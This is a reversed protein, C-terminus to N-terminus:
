RDPLGRPGTLTAWGFGAVLGVALLTIVAHISDRDTDDHSARGVATGAGPEVPGPGGHISSPAVQGTGEDGPSVSRTM